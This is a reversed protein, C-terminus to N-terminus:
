PITVMAAKFTGKFSYADPSGNEDSDYDPTISSNELFTVMPAGLITLNEADSVKLAGELIGTEISTGDESLVGSLRLFSIPLYPPNFAEHPFQLVGSVTTEFTAGALSCTLSSADGDFSYNTGEVLGPGVALTVEGAERDDGTVKVLVNLTGNDFSDSFFDNLMDGTDDTFPASLVLESFRYGMGTLDEVSLTTDGEPLQIDEVTTSGGGTCNTCTCTQEIPNLPDGPLAGEGLGTYNDDIGCGAVLLLGLGLLILPHLFVRRM